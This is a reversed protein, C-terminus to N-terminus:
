EGRLTKMVPHEHSSILDKGRFAIKFIESLSLNPWEPETTIGKAFRFKYAGLIMNSSVCTWKTMAQEAALKASVAWENKRGNPNPLKVPWLLTFGQRTKVLYFTRKSLQNEDIEPAFDPHVIYIESDDKM